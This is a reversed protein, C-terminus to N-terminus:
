IEKSLGGGVEWDLSASGVLYKWLVRHNEKM